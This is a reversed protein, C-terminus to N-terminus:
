IGRVIVGRSDCDRIAIVAGRILYAGPDGMPSRGVCEVVTGGCLGIDLMRRRMSGHIMLREVVASEGIAIDCLRKAENLETM